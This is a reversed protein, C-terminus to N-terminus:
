WVIRKEPVFMEKPACEGTPQNAFLPYATGPPDIAVVNAGRLTLRYPREGLVRDITREPVDFDLRVTDGTALGDIRLWRGDIQLEVTADNVSAYASRADSWEPLRLAVTPADIIDLEVRGQAPLYSRVTLWPSTRNLLLNVHTEDGHREVISDWVCYLTRAGNATCCHMIGLRQLQADDPGADPNLNLGDNANMWGFFSGVSREVINQTDIHSAPTHEAIRYGKPMNDAFGADCLQGEAYMNRTWRDVDDYYDGTGARTLTLALWVMDAVECIEVTNGRRKLYLDSGPMYEAYYGILPDGMERAWRYCADARQLMDRDDAAVGYETVAMLAYLGHHFHWFDYRGSENKFVRAVAWRALGGALELAPEYGTVRAFLAAGHGLAGVNYILRFVPDGGDALSGDAIPERPEDADSPPIVGPRFRGKWLFRFDEKTRTLELLRDIKQKGLEVWRPDNDTQALTALAILMRGEAWVESFGRSESNPPPPLVGEPAYSLGDEGIFELQAEIVAKDVNMNQDSGSGLRCMALAEIFKPPINLFADTVHGAHRQAPDRSFDVTFGLAWKEDPFWVNTLANIALSMRDALDLTDPMDTTHRHGCINASMPNHSLM